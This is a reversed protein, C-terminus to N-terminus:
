LCKSPKLKVGAQRLRQFVLELHQLHETFTQSYVLMDDLYPLCIKDRLGELCENMFNQFAAPAGSLGFPIREWEYLGWPTVFATYPKSEETMVGQHYAKGQDLLSFWRSGGLGDLADQIKPLPRSDALSKENIKRFDVCLRLSGDKKRACVLPSAYPSKSKRVSGKTILNQLYDKVEDYLAQPISRYSTKVPVKDVMQIDLKLEPVYGIDDDNRAFVDGNRALLDTVQKKEKESLKLSGLSVQPAITIESTSQRCSGDSQINAEVSVVSAITELRGLKTNRPIFVSRSSPNHVGLLVKTPHRITVLAENLMEEYKNDERPIFLCNHPESSTAGTRVHAKIVQSCGPPIVLTRSGSTVQGVTEDHNGVLVKAIKACNKHPIACTSSLSNTFDESGYFCCLHEIVNYGLIPRTLSLTDSVLFPITIPENEGLRSPIEVVGHYQIKDGSASSVSLNPYVKELPKIDDSEIGLFALTDFYILSVQAGTAWLIDIFKDGLRGKIICEEGILKVLKRKHLPTLSDVAGKINMVAFNPNIM